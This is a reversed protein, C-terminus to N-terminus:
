TRKDVFPNKSTKMEIRLPTGVLKFHDRIRGELFRKYSDTVHELSNGHVIVVPPNSGGQHAYRLKPRYTGARRPQQHAVAEQLLRTLVPTSMKRTASAHADAISRWVPALGQRRHASIQLVPAFRLFPLRHAIQRALTDRQYADVADWKNVAVVVARGSELVYGAIHADQDTVGQTADEEETDEPDAKPQGEEQEPRDALRTARLQCPCQHLVLPRKLEHEPRDEDADADPVQRDVQGLDQGSRGPGLPLGLM